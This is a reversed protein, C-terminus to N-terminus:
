LLVWLVSPDDAPYINRKGLPKRNIGQKSIGRDPPM